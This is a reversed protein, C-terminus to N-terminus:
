IVGDLMLVDSHANWILALVKFISGTNEGSIGLNDSELMEKYNLLIQKLSEWIWGLRNLVGSIITLLDYAENYLDPGSIVDHVYLSNDLMYVASPHEDRYKKIHYKLVAAM